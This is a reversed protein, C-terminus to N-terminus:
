ECLAAVSSASIVRPIRRSSVRRRAAAESAIMASRARGGVHFFCPQAVRARPQSSLGSASQAIACSSYSTGGVEAHSTGRQAQPASAPQTRTSCGESPQRRRRSMHPRTVTARRPPACVQNSSNHPKSHLKLRRQRRWGQKHQPGSLILRPTGGVMPRRPLSGPLLSRTADQQLPLRMGHPLEDNGCACARLSAGAQTHAWHCSVCRKWCTRTPLPAAEPPRSATSLADRFTHSSLYTDSAKTHASVVQCAGPRRCPRRHTLRRQGAHRLRQTRHPGHAHATYAHETVATNCAPHSPRRRDCRSTTPIGACLWVPSALPGRLQTLRPLARENGKARHATRRM